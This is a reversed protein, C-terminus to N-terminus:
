TISANKRNIVILEFFLDGVKAQEQKIIEEGKQIEEIYTKITRETLGTLLQGKAIIKRIGMGESKELLEKIIKKREEKKNTSGLASQRARRIEDIKCEWYGMFRYAENTLIRGTEIFPM